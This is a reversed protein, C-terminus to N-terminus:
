EYYGEEKGIRIWLVVGLLILLGFLFVAILPNVM